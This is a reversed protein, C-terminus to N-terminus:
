DHCDVGKLLGRVRRNRPDFLIQLWKGILSFIMELLFYIVTIAILPFFAEYTRSRVIDGMKTLDEVAIYGVIATAKLLGTIEGQYSPLVRPIAQPLIIRFLTQRNSHGLAYAAEYQGRDITGVAMRLLGYVSAGFTATFGIVAVAIGSISVSAFIIYYLVMLLVVMPMGQVLWLCVSTVTNALPNGNRCLMFLVFGLATGFIISLVTILMTTGIGQVFLKWRSERIFTKDFSDAIKDLFGHNNNAYDKNLVVMVASESLYTDSFDVAKKREDTVAFCSISFDCKGSQIAALLGDFNMKEIKLAYGYEECFGVVIEMEVGVPEGDRIYEYPVQMPDCAMVLTGNIDQLDRYDDLTKGAEDAAYWKEVLKDLSGDAKIKRIYENFQERVKQGKEGKSFAAAIQTEILREDLWTLSEDEYRMFIASSTICVFADIQGAKLAAALDSFSGFYSIQANPLLDAVLGGHVSGTTVGIRKDALEAMTSYVGESQSEKKETLDSKRVALVVGGSSVPESFLVQEAREPTANMDTTFDCKGSEVEPIRGAYDVDVIQLGYGKERCFRTILDIDYGVVMGDKIYCFPADITTAAVRIIRGDKKLDSMDVTKIEEDNGLWLDEIEKLTGGEKLRIIFENLEACLAAAEEDNKRFAFCYDNVMLKQPLYTIQPQEGCIMKVCMEDGLFGDIKNTLLATLCDANTNFLLHESDPFFEDAIDEMLPGVLVGIPKGNYDEISTEDEAALKFSFVSLTLVFLIISIFITGTTNKSGKNGSKIM